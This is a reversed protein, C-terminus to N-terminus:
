VQPADLGKSRLAMPYLFTGIGLLLRVDAAVEVAAPVVELATAALM